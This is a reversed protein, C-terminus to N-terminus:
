WSVRFVFDREPTEFLTAKLFRSLPTQRDSEHYVDIPQAGSEAFVDRLASSFANTSLLAPMREAFARDLDLGDLDPSYFRRRFLDAAAAVIARREDTNPNVHNNM